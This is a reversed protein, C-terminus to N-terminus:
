FTLEYRLQASTPSVAVTARAPAQSPGGFAIMLGGGVLGAVGVALGVGALTDMTRGSDVVDAYKSDVCRVAGCEKELTSFKSQAIPAAVAAVVAGVVGVGAVVFGAVRVRGGTPAPPPAARPAEFAVTKIEGARVTVARRQAAAGPRTVEVVKDGPDVVIPLGLRAPPVAAGNITVAAGAGPDAVVLILRGTRRELAALEAAATDRTRAHKPSSPALAAAAYMASLLAERAEAFAGLEILCLAIMLEANPSSSAKHATRFLVLAEAYKHQDYLTQGANFSARAEAEQPRPPPDQAFVPAPACALALAVLGSGVRLALRRPSM